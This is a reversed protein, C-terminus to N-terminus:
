RKKPPAQKADTSYPVDMAPLCNLRRMVARNATCHHKICDDASLDKKISENLREM